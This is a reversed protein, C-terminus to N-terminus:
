DPAAIRVLVQDAGAQSGAAVIEEIVGDVDALIEHEMKMAELVVVRQGASVSDGVEADVAIVKGHMPALLVGEGGGGSADPPLTCLDVIELDCDDFAALLRGPSLEVTRIPVEVGGVVPSPADMEVGFSEGDLVVELSDRSENVAVEHEDGAASIRTAWALEGASSWGALGPTVEAARELRAAYLRAVAAVLQERTVSREDDLEDLFATTAEGAAFEASGLVSALLARNTVTGLAVTLEVARLLRARAEERDSGGCVLKALMPDYFPTIESGTRVGTDVRVLDPGPTEWLAITGTAPLYDNAPDEAYLRVEIAHGEIKVDEQAVTLPEGAAIRLQWEVLDLGTVLETVPHEVQL